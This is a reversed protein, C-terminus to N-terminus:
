GDRDQRVLLVSDTQEVDTPTMAAVAILRTKVDTRSKTSGLAEVLVREVLSRASVGRAKAVTEVQTLINDSIPLQGM